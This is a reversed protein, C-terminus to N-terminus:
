KEESKSLWGIFGTLSDTGTDQTGQAHVVYEIMREIVKELFMKEQM